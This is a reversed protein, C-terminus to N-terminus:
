VVATMRPPWRKERIMQALVTQAGTAVVVGTAEGSVCKASCFVSNRSRRFSLGGPSSADEGHAQRAIPVSDGSIPSADVAFDDSAHIVRVDAPSRENMRLSIVDGRVLSNADVRVWRGQTPAFAHPARARARSAAGRAASLRAAM